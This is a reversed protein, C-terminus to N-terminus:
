DDRSQLVNAIAVAIFAKIIDFPVFPIIAMLLTQKLTTKMFLAFHCAGFLYIIAVSIMMLIIQTLLNRNKDFTLGIFLAAPIFGIIYGTTPGVLGARAGSFWPIGAIGLILYFVMSLGGYFSRLLIGSLLVALVQGTIPVPTFPLPIRIQASIGTIGAMSLSLLVRKTWALQCLWKYYAEKQYYFYEIPKALIM